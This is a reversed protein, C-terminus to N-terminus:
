MGLALRAAACDAAIQAKLASLDAFVQEERLWAVFTVTVAKGYVTEDFEFVHVELLREGGGVTPRRGVNAVGRHQVSVDAALGQITVAFVGSLPSFHRRLPINLTSFGLTRGRQAGHVVRGRIQYPQGLCAEAEVLRGAALHARIMSSGVKEQGLRQLALAQVAFGHRAGAACLSSVDGERNHGYRFDEGIWVSNVQLFEVLVRQVFEAAAMEAIVQNFPLCLVRTIGLARLGRLKDKLRLLRRQPVGFFESPQPEFLLVTAPLGRSKAEATVQQLLQQHGLHLGDFNGIALVCGALWPQAQLQRCVQFAASVSM